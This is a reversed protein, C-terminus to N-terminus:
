DKTHSEDFAEISDIQLTGTVLIKDCFRVKRDDPIEIMISGPNTVAKIMRIEDKHIVEVVECQFTYRNSDKQIM